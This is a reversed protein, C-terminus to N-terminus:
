IHNPEKKVLKVKEINFDTMWQHTLVFGNKEYLKIAPANKAATEVVCSKTNFDDELFKLLLDALGQRFFDPDVVVSCIDLLEDIILFEVAAALSEGKWIGYFETNSFQIEEQKRKLPPFDSAGVLKSEISYSRQFLKWLQSSTKFENHNLRQIKVENM